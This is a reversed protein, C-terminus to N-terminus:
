ACDKGQLQWKGSQMGLGLKICPNVTHMILIVLNYAVANQTLFQGLAYVPQILQIHM